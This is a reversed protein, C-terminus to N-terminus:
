WIECFPRVEIEFSWTSPSQQVLWFINDAVDGPKVFFNDPKDPMRERTKPLDVVGDIIVLAVHIGMPGLYKAMSEALSRQAAKAPAFAATKVGGRRSATAGIIIISGSGKKKMMPIVYQGVLMLGLANVRWNLEFEEPKIEEINGWSGSGANYIVVDIDGLDQQIQTFAKNISNSDSIDCEYAKANGLEEAMKKTLTDSRALLALHYGEKSFRTAFAAGNGPGVGIVVCTKKEM